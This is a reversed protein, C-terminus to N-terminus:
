RENAAETSCRATSASRSFLAGCVRRLGGPRCWLRFFGASVADSRAARRSERAGTTARVFEWWSTLHRESPFQAMSGGTEALIVAAIEEGVGPITQLLEFERGLPVLAAAIRVRLEAMQKELFVLHDLSHRIMWKLHEDLRHGELAEAILPLKNRLRAKAM